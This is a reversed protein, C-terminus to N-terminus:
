TPVNEHDYWSSSIYTHPGPFIALVQSNDSFYRWQPNGRSIHGYLVDKNNENRDLELPIHTAWLKSDAQSVLIGFSNQEIFSKVEDINDNRHYKPIYM